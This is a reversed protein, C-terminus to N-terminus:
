TRARFIIINMRYFNQRACSIDRAEASFNRGKVGVGGWLFFDIKEFSWIHIIKIRASSFVLFLPIQFIKQM